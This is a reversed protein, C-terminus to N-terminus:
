NGQGSPALPRHDTVKYDAPPNYQFSDATLRPNAQVASFQYETIDGIISTTRFGKLLLDKSDFWLVLRKLDARNEKPRLALTQVDEGEPAEGPQPQEVVFAEDVKALGGLADLLSRLGTTFRDLPYLDARGRDPRVWWVQPGRALIIERRPEDQELRLDIPRGWLLRGSGEVSRESDSGTAVFLSKRQYDAALGQVQQYRQQVKAALAAGALYLALGCLLALIVSPRKVCALM